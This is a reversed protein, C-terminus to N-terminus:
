GRPRRRPRLACLERGRHQACRARSWRGGPGRAGQACLRRGGGRLVLGISGRLEGVNELASSGAATFPSARVPRCLPLDTDYGGGFTARRAEVYVGRGDSGWVAVADM